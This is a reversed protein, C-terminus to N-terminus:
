FTLSEMVNKMYASKCRRYREAMCALQDLKRVNARCADLDAKLKEAQALARTLQTQHFQVQISALDVMAIGEDDEISQHEQLQMTLENFQDCICISRVKLMALREMTEDYLRRCDVMQKVVNPVARGMFLVFQQLTDDDEM